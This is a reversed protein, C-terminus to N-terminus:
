ENCLQSFFSFSQMINHMQALLLDFYLTRPFGVLTALEDRALPYMM